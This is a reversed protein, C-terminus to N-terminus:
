KIYEDYKAFNVVRNKALQGAVWGYGALQGCVRVAREEIYM